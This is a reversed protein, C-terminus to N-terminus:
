GIVLANGGAHRQANGALDTALVTFRYHGRPLGLTVRRTVRVGTRCSGLRATKVVSGKTDSVALRVSAKPSLDDKVSFAFTAAQGQVAQVADPALTIPGVTDLVTPVDVQLPDDVGGYEDTDLLSSALQIHIEHTGDLPPLQVTAEATTSQWAGYPGDDVAFRFQDFLGNDSLASLLVTVLDVNTWPDVVTPDPTTSPLAASPRVMASALAPVACVALVAMLGVACVVGMRGRLSWTM